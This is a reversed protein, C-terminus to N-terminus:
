RNPLLVPLVPRGRIMLSLPHLVRRTYLFVRIAEITPAILSIRGQDNTMIEQTNLNRWM